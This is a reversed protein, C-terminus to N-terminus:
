TNFVKFVALLEKNYMDYNLETAKFTCSHFAVSYVKEEIMIPLM